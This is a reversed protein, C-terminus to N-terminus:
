LEHISHISQPYSTHISALFSSVFVNPISRIFRQFLLIYWVIITSHIDSCVNYCQCLYLFPLIYKECVSKCCGFPTTPEVELMPPNHKGDGYVEASSLFIFKKVGADIAADVLGFTKWVNEDFLHKDSPDNKLEYLHFVVDVGVMANNVKDANNLDYSNLIVCDELNSPALNESTILYKM